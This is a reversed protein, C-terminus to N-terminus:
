GPIDYTHSSTDPHQGRKRSTKEFLQHAKKHMHQDAKLESTRDKNMTEIRSPKQQRRAGDYTVRWMRVM